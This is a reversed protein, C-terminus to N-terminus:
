TSNFLIRTFSMDRFSQQLTWKPKLPAVMKEFIQSSDGLCIFIFPVKQDGFYGM